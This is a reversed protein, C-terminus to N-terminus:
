IPSLGRSVYKGVKGWWENGCKVVVITTGSLIFVVKEGRRITGPGTKKTEVSNYPSMWQLPDDVTTWVECGDARFCSEISPLCSDYFRETEDICETNRFNNDVLEHWPVKRLAESPFQSKESASWGVVQSTAADIKSIARGRSGTIFPSFRSSENKRQSSPKFQLFSGTILNDQLTSYFGEKYSVDFQDVVPDDGIVQNVIGSYHKM